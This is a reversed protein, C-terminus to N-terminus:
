LTLSDQELRRGGGIGGRAVVWVYSSHVSGPPANRSPLRPTNPWWLKSLRAWHDGLETHIM